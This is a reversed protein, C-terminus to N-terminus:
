LIIFNIQLSAAEPVYLPARSIKCFIIDSHLYWSPLAKTMIPAPSCNFRILYSALSFLNFTYLTCKSLLWSNTASPSGSTTNKFFVTHSSRRTLSFSSFLSFATESILRDDLLFLTSWNISHALLFSCVRNPLILFLSKWTAESWGPLVRLTIESVGGFSQISDCLKYSFWM